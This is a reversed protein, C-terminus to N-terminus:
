EESWSGVCLVGQHREQRLLRSPRGSFLFNDPTGFCSRTVISSRVKSDINDICDIVYDPNGAVPISPDLRARERHRLLDVCRRAVRGSQGQRVARYPCRSRGLARSSCLIGRLFHSEPNWGRGVNGDLPAPGLQSVDDPAFTGCALYLRSLTLFRVNLSSLSVQDFDIIRIKRIGSRVLMVAAASGVGGVGVVVVFKDRIQAMKDDGFFAYNRALAERIIVDSTQRGKRSNVAASKAASSMSSKRSGVPRTFDRLEETVDDEDEEELVHEIEDKLNKRRTTRRLAQAAFISGATLATSAAAVLVLKGTSSRSVDAVRSIFSSSASSM